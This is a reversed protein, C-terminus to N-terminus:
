KKEPSADDMFRNITAWEGKRERLAEDPVPEYLEKGFVFYEFAGTTKSGLWLEDTGTLGGEGAEIGAGGYFLRTSRGAKRSLILVNKTELFFVERTEDITGDKNFDVRSGECIKVSGRLWVTHHLLYNKGTITSDKRELAAIASSTAFSFMLMWKLASRLRLSPDILPPFHPLKM